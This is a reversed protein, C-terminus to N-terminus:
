VDFLDPAQPPPYFTGIIIFPNPGINHFRLTTGLYLHFDTTRALTLYKQRVKEAAAEPADGSRVCNRYLQCTEWDEILMHSIRGSDDEFRISFRWPIKEAVEAIDGYERFLDTQQFQALKDPNWRPDVPKCKFDLIRSPKFTALSTGRRPDRTEQLLRALNSHVNRLVLERRARWGPGTPVDGVTRIGELNLVKHSEPRPDNRDNRELDVEIWQYKKFRTEYPLDRFPIPYIRVWSGDERFGATCVLEGYKRSLTPYTKVTILVRTLM